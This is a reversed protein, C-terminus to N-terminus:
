VAVRQREPWPTHEQCNMSFRITAKANTVAAVIEAMKTIAHPRRARPLHSCVSSASQGSVLIRPWVTM